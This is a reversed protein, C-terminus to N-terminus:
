DMTLRKSRREQWSRAAATPWGQPELSLLLWSLGRSALQCGIEGGPRCGIPPPYDSEACFQDAPNSKIKLLGNLPFLILHFL